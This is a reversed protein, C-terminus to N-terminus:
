LEFKKKYDDQELKNNEGQYTLTKDTNQKLPHNNINNNNSRSNSNTSTNTTDNNNNRTMNSIMHMYM